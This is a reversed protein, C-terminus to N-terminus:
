VALPVAGKEVSAGVLIGQWKTFIHFAKYAAVRVLVIFYMFIRNAPTSQATHASYCANIQRPTHRAFRQHPGHAIRDHVAARVVFPNVGIAATPNAHAPEADDIQGGAMLGDRVFISGDPGDEITLDVVVAFQSVVERAPTM